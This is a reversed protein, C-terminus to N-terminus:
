IASVVKINGWSSIIVGINCCSSYTSTKAVHLIAGKILTSRYQISIDGRARFPFPLKVEVLADILKIKLM